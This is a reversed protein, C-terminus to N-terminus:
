SEDEIDGEQEKAIGEMVRFAFCKYKYFDPTLGKYDVRCIVGEGVHSPDEYSESLVENREALEKASELLKESDGDFVFETLPKSYPLGRKECWDALQSVTFDISTGDEATLQIRYILIKYQGELCGYKYLIKEGYKKSFKKDKLITTSHAPMIPKGNAFGVIEFYISQGKTLYPKLKELIEFRYTEPGHFGEKESDTPFLTVNRTGALYEWTEVNEKKKRLLKQFWNQVKPRIVQTYSVRGSTGHWKSHFSINAGVPIKSAYFGLQETDVHKKFLPTEIHRTKPLNGRGEKRRAQENYYKQCIKFGELEDFSDGLSFKLNHGTYALSEVPMALGESKVKLFKEVKLRGNDSVYGAKTKDLNLESHRFLNNERCYEESLQTDGCQFFLIIDGEKAEKSVITEFGFIVATQIKDAGPIEFVRDIKGIRALHQSM